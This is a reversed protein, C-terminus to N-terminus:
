GSWAVVKGWRRCGGHSGATSRSSRVKEPWALAKLLEALGGQEEEVVCGGGVVRQGRWRRTEGEVTKRWRRGVARTLVRGGKVGFRTWRRGPKSGSWELASWRGGVSRIKDALWRRRHPLLGGRNKSHASLALHAPGRLWALSLVETPEAWQLLTMERKDKLNNLNFELILKFKM